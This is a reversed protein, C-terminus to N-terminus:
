VISISVVWGALSKRPPAKEEDLTAPPSTWHHLLSSISWHFSLSAYRLSWSRLNVRVFFLFAANARKTETKQEQWIKKSKLHAADQMWSFHRDTKVFSSELPSTNLDHILIFWSSKDWFTFVANAAWFNRDPDLHQIWLNEWKSGVQPSSGNQSVHKLCTTAVIYM